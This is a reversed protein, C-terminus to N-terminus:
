DSSKEEEADTDSSWISEVPEPSDSKLEQTNEDLAADESAPTEKATPLLPDSFNLEIILQGIQQAPADVLVVVLIAFCVIYLLEALNIQLSFQLTLSLTNWRAAFM